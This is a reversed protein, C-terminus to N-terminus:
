INQVNFYTYMKPGRWIYMCFKSPVSRRVTKSANRETYIKVTQSHALINLETEWETVRCM